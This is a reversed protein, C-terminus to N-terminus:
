RILDPIEALDRIEYQVHVGKDNTKGKPNYWCTDIGVNNGGQIDSTLSDGVILMRTVESTGIKKFVEEFFGKKPKEIGIEDSIFVDDLLEILGSNRLKKNQAEITGNTVGYQKTIGKLARVVEKGHLSYVATEGLESQYRRNFPVALEPDRGIQTFFDVFRNVLVEPKTLEGRELREWYGANIKSYQAIMRDSCEGMQFEEFLHRIATKEALEFDLLTGDVDWLIIDYM